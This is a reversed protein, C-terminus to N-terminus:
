SIAHWPQAYYTLRVVAPLATGVVAHQQANIRIITQRGRARWSSAQGWSAEHPPHVRALLRGLLQRECDNVQWPSKAPGRLCRGEQAAEAICQLFSRNDNFWSFYSWLAEAARARLLTENPNRLSAEAKSM